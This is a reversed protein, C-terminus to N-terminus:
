EIALTFADKDIEAGCDILLQNCKKANHKISAELLTNGPYYSNPSLGDDLLKKLSKVSDRKIYEIAKKETAFKINISTSM